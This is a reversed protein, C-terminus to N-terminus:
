YVKAYINHFYLLRYTKDVEEDSDLGLDWLFQLYDALLQAGDEMEGLKEAAQKKVRDSKLAGFPILVDIKLHHRIKPIKDPSKEKLRHITSQMRSLFEDHTKPLISMLLDRKTDGGSSTRSRDSRSPRPSNGAEDTQILFCTNKM